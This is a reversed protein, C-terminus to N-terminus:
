KGPRVYRASISTRVVGVHRLVEEYPMDIVRGRGTALNSGRDLRARLAPEDDPVKEKPAYAQAFTVTLAGVGARRAPPCAAASKSYETIEFEDSQKNNRHWGKLVAVKGKPVIVHRYGKHDSFAFICLGDIAVAVAADYPSRNAIRLHYAQGKKLDYFAQGKEVRPAQAAGNVLVELAYPSGKVSRLAKGDVVVTPSVLKKPVENLREQGSDKSSLEATVALPALLGAVPDLVDEEKPRLSVDERFASVKEGLRDMLRVELKIALVKGDKVALSYEGRVEHAAGPKIEIKSAAATSARLEVILRHVIGAGDVENPGQFSGISIATVKQKELVEILRRAVGKMSLLDGEAGLQALIRPDRVITSWERLRAGTKRDVLVLEVTLSTLQGKSLGARKYDVLLAHDAKADLAIAHQKLLDALLDRVGAPTAGPLALRPGQVRELHVARIREGQLYTALAKVPGQLRPRLPEAGGAPPPALLLAALVLLGPAGGRFSRKSM